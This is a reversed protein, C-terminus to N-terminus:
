NGTADKVDEGPFIEEAPCGLASAIEEMEKPKPRVFRREIRSLKGKDIRARKGLEDLTIGKFFRMIRMQHM